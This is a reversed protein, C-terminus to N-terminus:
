IRKSLIMISIGTDNHTTEVMGNLELADSRIYKKSDRLYRCSRGNGTAAYKGNQGRERDVKREQGVDRKWADDERFFVACERGNHCMIMDKPGNNQAAKGVKPRDRSCPSVEGEATAFVPM